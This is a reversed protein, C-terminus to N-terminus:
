FTWLLVYFLIMWVPDPGLTQRVGLAALTLHGPFLLILCAYTTNKKRDHEERQGFEQAQPIDKIIELMSKEEMFKEMRRKFGSFKAINLIRCRIKNLIELDTKLVNCVVGWYLYLHLVVHLITYLHAKQGSLDSVRWALKNEKCHRM